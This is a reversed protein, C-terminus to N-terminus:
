VARGVIEVFGAIKVGAVRSSLDQMNARRFVATTNPWNM